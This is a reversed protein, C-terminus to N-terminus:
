RGRVRERWFEGTCEPKVPLKLWAKPADFYYPGDVEHMPKYGYDRGEQVLKFVMIGNQEPLVGYLNGKVVKHEVLRYESVVEDVIAEVNKYGFYTGM